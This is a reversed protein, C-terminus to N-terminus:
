PQPTITSVAKAVKADDWKEPTVPAAMDTVTTGLGESDLEVTAGQNNTVYVGKGSLMVVDLGNETLGFGGWFDTGRVGVTALSTKVEYRHPRKTMFGTVARFAGKTLEFLALNPKDKYIKYESFTFESDKGVTIVSGDRLTLQIVSASDTMYKDGKCVIIDTGADFAQGYREITAHGSVSTVKGINCPRALAITSACTFIVFFYIKLIRM